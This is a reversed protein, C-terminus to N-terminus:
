AADALPMGLLREGPLVITVTTGERLRSTLTLEGGHMEAIRRAFPLGLGTGGHRRAMASEVQEFPRMVREIDGEPIGTGTDAVTIALDGGVPTVGVRIRVSGGEPTFKVANSVVNLLAQRLLRADASVTFDDDLAATLSVGADIAVTECMRLTARVVESVDAEEERLELKGAEAKALDLIDDIISLLHTGSAHIDEAYGVYQDKGIPGFLESKLIDSFGCIANLPTRLEHSMTALFESKAKNAVQAQMLARETRAKQERTFRESVYARRLYSEHLYSSFLGIGTAMLLFFNNALIVEFPLPNVLTAVLQYAMVLGLSAAASYLFKLRILTGCYATVMILGAYYHASAQVPMVAIMALVGVGSLTMAGLLATQAFAYFRPHFSLGFIALLGPVVIGYRISLVAALSEGAMMMDLAGFLIYLVAGALFYARVLTISRALTEFQFTREAKADAFTLSIPDIAYRGELMRSARDEFGAAGVEPESGGDQHHDNSTGM